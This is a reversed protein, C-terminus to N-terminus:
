KNVESFKSFKEFINGRASEYVISIVGVANASFATFADTANVM